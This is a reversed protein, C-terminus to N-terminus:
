AERALLAALGPVEVPLVEHLRHVVTRLVHVRASRKCDAALVTWPAAATHTRALLDDTAQYYADRQARNRWDEDTLKWSKRPDHARANFRRLQEEDSVHLFFKFLLAGDDVLQQEFAQIEDYARGWEDPTAFGEVREVLVRGYWSRDFVALRGTGPLRRWFRYLYHRRADQGEPPGIPYVVYGRPDLPATLRRIAGGKGAADWGEFVAVVARREAHAPHMLAPLARQYTTLARSYAPRSLSRSLDVDALRPAKM